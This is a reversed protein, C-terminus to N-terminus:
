GRGTRGRPITTYSPAVNGTAYVPLSIYEAGPITRNQKGKKEEDRRFDIVKVVGKLVQM